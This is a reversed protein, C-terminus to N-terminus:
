NIRTYTYHYRLNKVNEPPNEDLYEIRIVTIIDDVYGGEYLSYPFGTDDFKIDGLFSGYFTSTVKWTGQRSVQNTCNDNKFEIQRFTGNSKIEITTLLDCKSTIYEGMAYSNNPEQVMGTKEVSILKFTGTITRHKIVFDKKKCGFNIFLFSFIIMKIIIRKQM